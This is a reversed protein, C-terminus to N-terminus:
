GALTTGTHPITSDNKFEMDHQDVVISTM